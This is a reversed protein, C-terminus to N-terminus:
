SYKDRKAAAAAAARQNTGRKPFCINFFFYILSSGQDAAPGPNPFAVSGGHANSFFFFGKSPSFFFKKRRPYM